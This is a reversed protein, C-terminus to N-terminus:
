VIEVEGRGPIVYPPATYTCNIWKKGVKSGGTVIAAGFAPTFMMDNPASGMHVPVPDPVPGGPPQPSMAPVTVTFKAVAPM